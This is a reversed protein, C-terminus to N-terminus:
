LIHKLITYKMLHGPFCTKGMINVLLLFFQGLFLDGPFFYGYKMYTPFQYSVGAVIQSQFNAHKKQLITIVYSCSPCAVRLIM